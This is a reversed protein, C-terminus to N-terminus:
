CVMYEIGPLAGTVEADTVVVTDFGKPAMERAIESVEASPSVVLIKPSM